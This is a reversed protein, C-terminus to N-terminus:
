GEAPTCSPLSAFSLYEGCSECAIKDVDVNMWGRQACTLSSVAQFFDSLFCHSHRLTTELRYMFDFFIKLSAFTIKQM